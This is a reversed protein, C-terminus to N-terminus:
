TQYSRVRPRCSELSCLTGSDRYSVIDTGLRTPSRVAERHERLVALM